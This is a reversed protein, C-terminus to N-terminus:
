LDIGNHPVGNEEILNNLGVDPVALSKLSKLFAPASQQRHRAAYQTLADEVIADIPRQELASVQNALERARASGVSLQPSTMVARYCSSPMIALLKVNITLKYALAAGYLLVTFFLGNVGFLNRISSM